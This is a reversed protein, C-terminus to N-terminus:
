EIASIAYMRGLEGERHAGHVNINFMIHNLQDIGWGSWM